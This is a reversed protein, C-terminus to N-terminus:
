NRIRWTSSLEKTASEAAPSAGGPLPVIGTACFERLTNEVKLARDKLEPNSQLLSIFGVYCAILTKVRHASSDSALQQVQAILHTDLTM